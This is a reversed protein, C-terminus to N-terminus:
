PFSAGASQAPGARSACVTDSGLRRCPAVLTLETDGIRERLRRWDEESSLIVAGPHAQAYATINDLGSIVPIADRRTYLNFIGAYTERYLVIEGDEGAAQRVAEALPRASKVHNLAPVGVWQAWGAAIVWGAM